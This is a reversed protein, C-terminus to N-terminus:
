SQRYVWEGFLPGLDCQCHEEALQRYGQTTAIGWKYSQYYDQLFANWAPEGMTAALAEVFLPGRGYVLAGYERGSYEGAPLGIPKEANDVRAWRGTWEGRVSRAADEGYAERYYVMTLYQAMAEDLWPEDPQDNGVTNYFWQHAVEHAVTAELATRANAGRDGYLSRNISVIGPYEIGLAGVLPSNIVDLEAYPYPGVQESFISIAKAAVRLADRASAEQGPLAYSNIRIEGVNDTLRVEFAQSAALYFDRAPGAVYTVVQEDGAQQRETEIGSAVMTLASPATVRVRYYSADNYSADANPPPPAANWGSPDYAPIVPYFEDLLLTNELYGLLGYNGGAERPLTSAFGLTMTIQQGPALPTALAARLALNGSIYTAEAAQGNVAVNSVTLQGGASNPILRFYIEELAVSERNTYLVRQQGQLSVEDIVRLDIEYQTAGALDELVAQEASVLNKAYVEGEPTTAQASQMAGPLSVSSCSGAAVMVLVLTLCAVIKRM